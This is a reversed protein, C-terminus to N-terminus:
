IGADLFSKEIVDDPWGAETLKAKVDERSLGSAIAENIYAVIESNEGSGSESGGSSSMDENKGKGKKNGPKKKLVSMLLYAFVALLIVIVIVWFWWAKFVSTSGSGNSSQCTTTEDNIINFTTGCNNVDSYTTTKLGNICDGETPEWQETCCTRTDTINTAATGCTTDSCVKNQSTGQCQQWACNGWIVTCGCAQTDNQDPMCNASDHMTRWTIGNICSSWATTNIWSSSCQSGNNAIGNGVTFPAYKEFIKCSNLPANDDDYCPYSIPSYQYRVRLSYTGNQNPVNLNIDSLDLTYSVPQGSSDYALTYGKGALGQGEYCQDHLGDSPTKVGDVWAQCEDSTRNREDHNSKSLFSTLKLTQSDACSQWCEYDTSCNLQGGYYAGYGTGNLCCKKGAETCNTEPSIDSKFINVYDLYAKQGFANGNANTRKKSVVDIENINDSDTNSFVSNWDLVLYRSEADWNADYDSFDSATPADLKKYQNNDNTDTPIACEAPSGTLAYYYHLSRGTDSKVVIEFACAGLTNQEDDEINEWAFSWNIKVDNISAGPMRQFQNEVPVANGGTCAGNSCFGGGPCTIVESTANTENKCYYERVSKPAQQNQNGPMAVADNGTITKKLFNLVTQFINDQTNISGTSESCVDTYILANTGNSYNIFTRGKVFTNNGGDSDSCVLTPETKMSIKRSDFTQALSFNYNGGSFKSGDQFMVVSIIDDDGETWKVSEANIITKGANASWKNIGDNFEKNLIVQPCSDGQRLCCEGEPDSEILQCLGTTANIAHWNVSSTAPSCSYKLACRPANTIISFLFVSNAPLVDRSDMSFIFNGGLENNANYHQNDLTLGGSALSTTLFVSDPMGKLIIIVSTLTFILFLLLIIRESLNPDNEFRGHNPRSVSVKQKQVM